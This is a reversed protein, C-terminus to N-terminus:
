WDHRIYFFFLLHPALKIKEVRFVDNFVYFEALEVM